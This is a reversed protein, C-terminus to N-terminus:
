ATSRSGLLPKGQLYPNETALVAPAGCVAVLIGGSHNQRGRYLEVTGTNVVHSM